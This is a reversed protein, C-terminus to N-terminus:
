FVSRQFSRKFVELNTTKMSGNCLSCIPRLNGLTTAGGKSEAIVHGCVFDFLDISKVKCCYCPASRKHSGMYTDWVARRLAQPIKQKCLSHKQVPDPQIPINKGLAEKLKFITYQHTNMSEIAKAPEILKKYLMKLSSSDMKNLTASCVCDDSTEHKTNRSGCTVCFHLEHEKSQVCKRCKRWIKSCVEKHQEVSVACDVCVRKKQNGYLINDWMCKNQFQNCCENRPRQGTVEEM